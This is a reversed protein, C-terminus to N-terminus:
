PKEDHNIGGFGCLKLTREPQQPAPKPPAPTPPTPEPPPEPDQQAPSPEEAGMAKTVGAARQAPVAVFSWEYADTPASLVFHVGDVGKRHECSGNMPNQGCVSCTIESVAAGVSTEKKIGGDIEAILDANKETRVMYAKGVLQTYREGASTIQDSVVISTQYIRAAQNEAKPAHDFIGTKGIYLEALKHLAPISFRDYDRDVENDCLVVPFTYVEDQSFERRTYRNIAELDSETTLTAQKKINM